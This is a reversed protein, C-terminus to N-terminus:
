EGLSVKLNGGGAFNGPNRSTHTSQQRPEYFMRTPNDETVVMSKGSICFNFVKMGLLELGFEYNMPFHMRMSPLEKIAFSFCANINDLGIDMKMNDLGMDVTMNSDLEAKINNLGMNINIDDLGMDVTMNSDLEAKINDLGMNANINIDDLGLDADVDLGLDTDLPNINFTWPNPFNIDASM